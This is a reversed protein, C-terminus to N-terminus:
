QSFNLTKLITCFIKFWNTNMKMEDLIKVDRSFKSKIVRNKM